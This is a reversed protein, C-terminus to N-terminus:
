GAKTTKAPGAEFVPAAFDEVSEVDKFPAPLHDVLNGDPDILFSEPVGTMKLDDAYDGSPDRAQPYNIGYEEVFKMADYSLDRSSVGLVTLDNRNAREFEELAPSEARCPGCWSAWVNLLVWDGKYDALSIEGGPPLTPLTAVPVPEGVRLGGEGTQLLGWTLLGLLVAVGVIALGTTIGITTGLINIEGSRKLNGLDHVLERSRSTLRFGTGGSAAPSDDVSRINIKDRSVLSHFVATFALAPGAASPPSPKLM